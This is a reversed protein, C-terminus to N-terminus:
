QNLKGGKTGDDATDPDNPDAPQDPNDPQQPNAPTATGPSGGSNIMVMTGMIAVGAPSITIFGGPGVLSLEMGAQIVVNMAGSIYVSQGATLADNGSIMVDRNGGATLSVNMGVEEKRNTGVTVSENNTVQEKRDGGVTISLDSGILEMRKNGNHISTDGSIKEIFKGAVQSQKDGGVKEFQSSQVMMHRNAGIFERSEKEVRWDMDKEANMFIQEDGKKDEFRLENYNSSGGGKTSRTMFTTRTQNAALAYPPMQEDNYVRGTILPRDPDGELFDVIVEQGIRPINISGWNKGAWPQSVRVWCSSNENKKGERDWFFQVKVRGYKDTWIEEGAKGVVVATQPGQVFPRRTNRLPRYPVSYPICHFHNSYHEGTDGGASGMYSTGVTASHQVETLLYTQNQDDRAHGSLDFRYGSTFTRCNGSGVGILHVAEEEQMRIQTRSEGEAKKVYEGPYDFVEYKDNGGVSFMTNENALLNTSPTEFNYDTLAYKGPRFEQELNWAGIFDEEKSYVGSSFDVRAKSQSPCPKHVSPKNGMVLTHKNQEHEFFYFIGYQEMLRSVFNFDTERYQVCYERQEFDGQLSNRFDGFGRDKFVKAVIDPITMNQFIRCDATRTLLWLWPVIEAHYHTFREDMGTQAFRSVFGNFYRKSGDAVKWSVTVRQGIIKTFDVSANESLLDASIRFLRSISEQAAFSHLLLVDKGLPTDIAIIRDDQTYGM